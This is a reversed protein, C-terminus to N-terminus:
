RGVRRGGRKRAREPSGFRLGRLIRCMKPQWFQLRFRLLKRLPRRRRDRRANSIVPLRPSPSTRSSSFANRTKSSWFLFYKGELALAPQAKLSRAAARASLWLPAKAKLNRAPARFGLNQARPDGRRGAFRAPVRWSIMLVFAARPTGYPSVSPRWLLNQLFAASRCSFLHPRSRPNRSPAVVPIKAM